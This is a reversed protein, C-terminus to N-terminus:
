GCPMACLRLTGGEAWPACVCAALAFLPFGTILAAESMALGVLSRYRRNSKWLAQVTIEGTNVNNLLNKDRLLKNMLSQVVGFADYQVNTTAEHCVQFGASDILHRLSRREFHYLHRPVDLHFWSEKFARAYWSGANPVEVILYGRSRLVRRVAVLTELPNPLHELCHFLTVVDFSKPDFPCKHIPLNYVTIGADTAYRSAIESLETGFVEWGQERLGKLLLGKGCGIDLIRGRQEGCLSTVSKIRPRADM